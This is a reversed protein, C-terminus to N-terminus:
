VLVSFLIQQAKGDSGGANGRFRIQTEPDAKATSPILAKSSPALVSCLSMSMLFLSVDSQM